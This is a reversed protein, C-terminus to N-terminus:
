LICNWRKSIILGLFYNLIIKALWKTLNEFTEGSAIAIDQLQQEFGPMFEKEQTEDLLTAIQGLGFEFTGLHELGASVAQGLKAIAVTAVGLGAGVAIGVPGLKGLLNGLVGTQPIMHSISDSFNSFKVNKISSGLNKFSNGIGKIKNESKGASLGASTLGKSLKQTDKIFQNQTIDGKKLAESLKKLQPTFEDKLRIIKETINSAM